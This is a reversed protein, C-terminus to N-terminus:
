AHISEGRRYVWNKIHEDEEYHPFDVLNERDNQIEVQSSFRTEQPGQDLLLEYQEPM